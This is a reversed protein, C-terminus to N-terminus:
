SKQTTKGHLLVAAYEAKCGCNWEGSLQASMTKIVKGSSMHGTSLAVMLSLAKYVACSNPALFKVAVGVIM